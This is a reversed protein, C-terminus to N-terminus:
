TIKQRSRLTITGSVAFQISSGAYTTTSAQNICYRLSGSGGNSPTSDLSGNNNDALTTVTFVPAPLLRDELAELFFRPSRFPIARAPRRRSLLSSLSLFRWM